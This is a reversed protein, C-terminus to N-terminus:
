GLRGIDGGASAQAGSLLQWNGGHKVEAVGGQPQARRNLALAGPTTKAFTALPTAALRGWWHSLLRPVGSRLIYLLSDCSNAM